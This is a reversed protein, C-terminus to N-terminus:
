LSPPGVGAVRFPLALLPFTLILTMLGLLDDPSLTMGFKAVM